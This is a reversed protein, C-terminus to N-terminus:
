LIAVGFMLPVPEDGFVPWDGTTLRIIVAVILKVTAMFLLAFAFWGAGVNGKVLRALLQQVGSVGRERYTMALAVIGPTFVGIFFLLPRVVPTSIANAAFWLAWAVVFVVAFYPVM